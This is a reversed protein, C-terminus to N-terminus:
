LMTVPAIVLASGSKLPKSGASTATTFASLSMALMRAAGAAPRTVSSAPCPADNVSTSVLWGAASTVTGMALLSAPSPVTDGALMVNVAESQLRGCVTVTVPM